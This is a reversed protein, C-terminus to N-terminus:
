AFFVSNRDSFLLSVDYHLLYYDRMTTVREKNAPCAEKGLQVPRVDQLTSKPLSVYQREM